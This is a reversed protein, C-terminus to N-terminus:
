HQLTYMGDVTALVVEERVAEASLRQQIAARVSKLPSNTVSADSVSRKSPSGEAEESAPACNRKTPGM